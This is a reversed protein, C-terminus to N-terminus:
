GISALTEVGNNAVYIKDIQIDYLDYPYNSISTNMSANNFGDAEINIFTKTILKSNDLYFNIKTLAYNSASDSYVRVVYSPNNKLLPAEPYDGAGYARFSDVMGEEAIFKKDLENTSMINGKSDEVVLKTVVNGAISSNKLAENFETGGEDTYLMYNLTCTDTNDGCDVNIFTKDLINENTDDYKVTLYYGTQVKDSVCQWNEDMHTDTPCVKASLTNTNKTSVTNKLAAKAGLFGMSFVLITCLIPLIKKLTNKM